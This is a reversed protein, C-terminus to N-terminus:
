AHRHANKKALRKEQKAQRKSLYKMHRDDFITYVVPIFILTLVSSLILGSIVVTGMSAQLEAGEGIGLSLPVLGLITTLSTMMIPRLRIPGANLIAEERSEGLSRRTNIYDILVIANNVVIGSLMILGIISTVNLTRNTILLGLLGGAFALPTSMMIIFPMLLSEFQSAIIMYVLIVALILALGLDSFAEVMEQNQGGFDVNYDSPLHLAEIRDRIDKSVSGLDRQYIDASITIYRAQDSRNIAIASVEETIDAIMELPVAGGMPSSIELQKLNEISEGYRNDGEIVVDLEEGEVKYRTAVRGDLMAKVASSVQATTLGFRAADDDRLRIAVQTIPDDMSSSVNRTGEVKKIEEVLQDGVQKLGDLDDGKVQISIPSGGTMMGMSSLSQVTFIAGPIDAVRREVEDVVDFVSEDRDALPVLVGNITGVNADSSLFSNGSTTSFLYELSEIDKIREVVEMMMADTEEVKAGAELEVGITFMGEDSEPIFEMGIFATSIISIVFTVVAIMVVSKKHKLSWALLSRYKQEIGKYIKDSRDLVAGIFKFRTVHHEGEFEDVVLLKSSLMPILTIAVVLSSVLSFTVTLAFERFMISTVGEVFVMPLFVAITTLTSATVAMAVESAGKIAAEKKEYGEQVFRYINELVVVSNDVLMGIGLALGGLTMINLTIDAFYLLIATSIVSIPMSLGIILTSRFSRLFILLIIVALIGGIIANQGVQSITDKIYESQDLIVKLNYPSTEDLQQIEKLVDNAVAVTNVGSQKQVAVSVAEEGNVKTISELDEQSLKVDAVDSLRVIGGTPTTLPIRQIEQISEFEGVTRLLFSKDGKSVTGAPLNINEAALMSALTDLSLGYADMKQTDVKVSVYENFGGSVSVSAVGQVREIAPKVVDDAYTQLTAVDAGSISMQIIAESNVDIQMVMPDSAGDPLMGKVLDVKERIDLAAFDMDTGFKFQIVVISTGEMTMSQITDINSVTGVAEEIPRTVLTEIEEPGVNSYSTSVIAVPIEINPFLDIPLRTASVMGFLVIVLIFMVTTVPRKVAISSVKM